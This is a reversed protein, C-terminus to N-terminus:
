VPMESGPSLARHRIERDDVGMDMEDIRLPEGIGPGLVRRHQVPRHQRRIEELGRRRDLDLFEDEDFDIDIERKV